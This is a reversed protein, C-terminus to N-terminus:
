NASLRLLASPSSAGSVAIAVPYSSTALGSPVTLNIQYLGAGSLGAFTPTISVNNVRLSVTNTTPAAGSFPVGPL